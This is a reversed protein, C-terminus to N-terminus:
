FRHTQILKEMKKAASDMQARVEAAEKARRAKIDALQNWDEKKYYTAKYGFDKELLRAMKSATGVGAYMRDKQIFAMGDTFQVGQTVGSYSAVPTTILWGEDKAELTEIRADKAAKERELQAVKEKLEELSMEEIPTEETAEMTEETAKSKTM